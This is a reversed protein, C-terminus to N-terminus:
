GQAKRFAQSAHPSTLFLKLLSDKSIHGVILLEIVDQEDGEAFFKDLIFKQDDTKQRYDDGDFAQIIEALSYKDKINRNVVQRLRLLAGKPPTYVTSEMRCHPVLRDSSPACRRYPKAKTVLYILAAALGAGLTTAILHDIM